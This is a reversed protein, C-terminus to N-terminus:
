LITYSYLYSLFLYFLIFICLLFIDIKDILDELIKKAPRSAKITDNLYSGLEHELEPSIHSLEPVEELIKYFEKETLNSM